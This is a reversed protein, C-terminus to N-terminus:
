NDQVYIFGIVLRGARGDVESLVTEAAVVNELGDSM